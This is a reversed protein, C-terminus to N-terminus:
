GLKVQFEADTRGVISKLDASLFSLHQPKGEKAGGLEGGVKELDKTAYMTLKWNLRTPPFQLKVTSCYIM